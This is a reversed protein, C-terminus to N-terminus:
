IPKISPEESEAKVKVDYPIHELYEEFSIPEVTVDIRYTMGMTHMMEQIYPLALNGKPGISDSLELRAMLVNEEEHIPVRVSVLRGVLSAKIQLTDEKNNEIEDM